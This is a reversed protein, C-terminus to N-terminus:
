GGSDILIERRRPISDVSFDAVAQALLSEVSDADPIPQGLFALAAKLAPLPNAKDVPTAHNQKSLKFGVEACALPLHMWAPAQYGFQNFLSLQRCSAEILDAGRVVETIGTEADDMVVALQYAYLGDSRKIIFDEAAFSDPVTVEGLLGDHFHNVRARNVIRIAGSQHGLHRCRGDYVGGMAQIQKRSCQCFYAEGSALLGDIKAQYAETRRSQYMLEGDWHLGFADLTRLIDDAAGPVERPPDIDEIRVLWQGGQSRARLYSGLAAILSGFHLSGSPSPAFRGIYPPYSM